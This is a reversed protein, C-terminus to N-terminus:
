HLSDYTGRAALVEPIREQAWRGLTRLPTPLTRGLETLEYEARSPIEPCAYRM